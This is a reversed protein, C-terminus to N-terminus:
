PQSGGSSLRQRRCPELAIADLTSNCLPYLMHGEPKLLTM